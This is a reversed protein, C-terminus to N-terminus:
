KTPALRVKSKAPDSAGIPAGNAPRPQDVGILEARDSRAIARDLCAAFYGVAVACLKPQEYPLSEIAARMQQASVKVAGRYVVQLLAIIFCNVPRTNRDGDQSM